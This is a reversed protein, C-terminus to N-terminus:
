REVTMKAITRDRLIGANNILIDLGRWRTKIEEMMGRVAEPHSVDAAVVHASDGRWGNMEGALLEADARTRGDGLDPHNLIVRAGAKHLTRAIESGIGQSAGTVLATKGSLDIPISM